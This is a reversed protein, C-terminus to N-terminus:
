IRLTRQVISIYSVPGYFSTQPKFCNHLDSLSSLSPGAMSYGAPMKFKGPTFANADDDDDETNDYILCEQVQDTGTDQIVKHGRDTNTFKERLGLGIHQALSSSIDARDKLVPITADGRLFLSCLYLFLIVVRM